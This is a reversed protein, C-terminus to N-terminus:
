PKEPASAPLHDILQGSERLDRVFDRVLDMVWFATDDDDLRDLIRDEMSSLTTDVNIEIAM